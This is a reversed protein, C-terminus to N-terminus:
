KVGLKLKVFDSTKEDLPYCKNIGGRSTSVVYVSDKALLVSVSRSYLGDPSTQNISYKVADDDTITVEAEGSKLKSHLIEFVEKNFDMDIDKVGSGFKYYSYKYEDLTRYYNEIKDKDVERCYKSWGLLLITYGSDNKVLYITAEYNYNIIKALVINILNDSDKANAVAQGLEFQDGGLDNNVEVYLDGNYYFQGESYIDYVTSSIYVGTNVYDDFTEQNTSRFFRLWGIPLASAALSICYLIITLIWLAKTKKGKLMNVISIVFIVSGRIFFVGAIICLIVM